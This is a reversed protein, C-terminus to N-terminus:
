KASKSSKNLRKMIRSKIRSATNKKIIGRAAARDAKKIIERVMEQAKADKTEVLRRTKKILAKLTERVALNRETRKKTQRLAKESQKKQPM